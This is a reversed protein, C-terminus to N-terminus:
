KGDCIATKAPLQEEAAFQRDVEPLMECLAEFGAQLDEPSTYELPNHSIGGRSQVFIMGTPLVEGFVMADHGAGSRIRMASLDRASAARDLIEILRGDMKVPDTWQTRIAEVRFGRRDIERLRSLFWEEEKILAERDGDRLDLTFFVSGPVVNQMGPFCQLKGFTVTATGVPGGIERTMEVILNAAEVVPDKRLNMPTTGAHNQQGSITVDYNVIGVIGEVVGIKKGHQELVAGQEVHLEIYALVDERCAEQFRGPDYGAGEMAKAFSVGNRDKEELHESKLSGVIARSGHCSSPYRSGEEELLAVVELSCEPVYGSAKLAGLAAIGTVIGAAGDYRGGDRVTDMHSGILISGPGKGPFRGYLNGLADEYCRLGAEEMWGALLKKGEAEQKTYAARWIVGDVKTREGLETLSKEIWKGAASGNM